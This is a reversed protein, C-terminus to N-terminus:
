LARASGRYIAPHRRPGPKERVHRHHSGGRGRVPAPPRAQPASPPFSIQTPDPAVEVNCRIVPLHLPTSRKPSTPPPTPPPAPARQARSAPANRRPPGVGGGAVSVLRSLTNSAVPIPPARPHPPRPLPPLPAHAPPAEAPPAEAPAAPPSGRPALHPPRRRRPARGTISAPRPRARPAGRRPAGRRPSRAPATPPSGRPALDPPRPRRLEPSPGHHECSAPPPAAAKTMATPALRTVCATFLHPLRGSRTGRAM